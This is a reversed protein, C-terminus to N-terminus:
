TPRPVPVTAVVRNTTVDIVTVDNSYRSASYVKQNLPNVCLDSAEWGVPVRAARAGTAADIALVPDDLYGCAYVANSVSDYALRSPWGQGALSDPLWITTELWQGCAALSCAATVIVHRIM